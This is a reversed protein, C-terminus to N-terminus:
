VWLSRYSALDIPLDFAKGSGDIFSLRANAATALAMDSLNFNYTVRAVFRDRDTRALPYVTSSPDSSVPAANLSMGGVSLRAAGFAKAFGMDKSSAGHAFVIIRVHEDALGARRRAEAAAIPRGSFAAVFASHRTRELPTAFIVADVDGDAPDIARADRVTYIAYDKLRYGEHPKALAVGDAAAAAIDAAAPKLVV